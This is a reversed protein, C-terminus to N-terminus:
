YPWFRWAFLNWVTTLITSFAYAVIGAWNTWDCYCRDRTTLSQKDYFVAIALVVLAIVGVYDPLNNIAMRSAGGPFVFHLVVQLSSQASIVVFFITWMSRYLFFALALCISAMALTTLYYWLTAIANTVGGPTLWYVMFQLLAYGILSCAFQFLMVMVLAKGACGIQEVIRTATLPRLVSLSATVVLGNTLAWESVFLMMPLAFLQESQINQIGSIAFFCASCFMWILLHKVRLPKYSSPSHQCEDLLGPRYFM